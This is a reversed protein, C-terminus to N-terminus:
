WVENELALKNQKRIRDHQHSTISFNLADSHASNHRFFDSHPERDMIKNMKDLLSLNNRYM